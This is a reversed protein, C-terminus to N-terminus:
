ESAPQEGEAAPQAEAGDAVPEIVAVDYAAGEPMDNTHVDAKNLYGQMFESFVQNQMVSDAQARYTAVVDAPIDALSAADAHDPDYIQIMSLVLADDAKARQVGSAEAMKVAARDILDALDTGGSQRMASTIQAVLTDLQSTGTAKYFLGRQLLQQRLNDRYQGETLGSQKLIIRWSSQNGASEKAQELASEVDEDTVEVGNEEAAQRVVEQEVFSEVVLQRLSEPTYENQGMYAGWSEDDTLKNTQRFNDIYTDVAKEGIEVGNVTAAVGASTDTVDIAPLEPETSQQPQPQSACGALAFAALATACLAAAIKQYSKKM